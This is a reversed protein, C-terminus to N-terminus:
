QTTPDDPSVLADIKAFLDSLTGNNELTTHVNAQGLQTESAHEGDVQFDFQQGRAELWRRRLELPAAVRVLHFGEAVAHEYDHTYRLADIALLRASPADRLAAKLFIARDISQLADTLALLNSKDENGFVLKSIARCMAGISAIQFGHAKRLHEAITSKGVGTFGILGIRKLKLM